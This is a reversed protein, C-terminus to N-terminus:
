EEAEVPETSVYLVGYKGRRGYRKYADIPSLMRYNVPTEMNITEVNCMALWRKLRAPEGDILILPRRCHFTRARIVGNEAEAGFRRVDRRRYQLDIKQLLSGELYVLIGGDIRRGNLVYVADPSLQRWHREEPYFFKGKEIGEARRISDYDSHRIYSSIYRQMDYENIWRSDWRVGSINGKLYKRTLKGARMRLEVVGDDTRRSRISRVNWPRVRIDAENETMAKGNVRYRYEVDPVEALAEGIGDDAVIERQIATSDIRGVIHQAYSYSVCATLLLTFLLKRTM